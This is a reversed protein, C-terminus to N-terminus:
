EGPEVGRGGLGQWEWAVLWVRQIRLKGMQEMLHMLCGIMTSSPANLASM